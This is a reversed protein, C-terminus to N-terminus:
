FSCRDSNVRSKETLGDITDMAESVMILFFNEVNVSDSSVSTEVGTFTESVFVRHFLFATINDILINIM